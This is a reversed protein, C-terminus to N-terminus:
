DAFRIPISLSYVSALFTTKGTITDSTAFKIWRIILDGYVGTPFDSLDSASFFAMGTDEGNGAFKFKRNDVIPTYNPNHYETLSQNVNIQVDISDNTGAPTWTVTIGGSISIEQYPSISLGTGMTAMYQGISYLSDDMSINWMASAGSGVTQLNDPSYYDPFHDDTGHLSTGNVSVGEVSRLGLNDGERHM